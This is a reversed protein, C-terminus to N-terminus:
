LIYRDIDFYNLIRQIFTPQEIFTQDDLNMEIDRNDIEVNRYISNLRDRRYLENFINQWNRETNTAITNTAITNTPTSIDIIPSTSVIANRRTRTPRNNINSNNEFIDYIIEVDDSDFSDMASLISLIQGRSRTPRIIRRSTFNNRNLANWGTLLGVDSYNMVMSFEYENGDNTATTNNLPESRCIPCPRDNWKSICSECFFHDTNCKYPGKELDRDEFCIQCTM